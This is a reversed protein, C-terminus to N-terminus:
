VVEQLMDSTFWITAQRLLSLLTSFSRHIIVVQDCGRGPSFVRREALQKLAVGGPHSHAQPSM